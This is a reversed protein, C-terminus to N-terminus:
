CFVSTVWTEIIKMEDNFMKLRMKLTLCLCIIEGPRDPPSSCASTYSGSSTQSFGGRPSQSTRRRKSCGELSDESSRKFTVKGRDSRYIVPDSRRGALVCYSWLIHQKFYCLITESQTSKLPVQPCSLYHKWQWFWLIYHVWEENLVTNKRADEIISFFM